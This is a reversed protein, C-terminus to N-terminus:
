SDFALTKLWTLSQQTNPRPLYELGVWGSYASERLKELIFCYNIEGTGPQGRGPNDAIQIHGIRDLNNLMTAALEGEMRQAHYIDYQLKVNDRKVRDMIRFATKTTSVLFGKMDVTNINEVLLTLGHKAFMDAAVALREVLIDEAQRCDGLCLGALCNVRPVGLGVAFEIAERVNAIFEEERGALCALGREGESWNGARINFLELSVGASKLATGVEVLGIDQPFMFEVAKFGAAAAARCREIMPVENFLFSLNASFRLM